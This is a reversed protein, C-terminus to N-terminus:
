FGACAGACKANMCAYFPALMTDCGTTQAGTWCQYCPTTKDGICAAAETCCGTPQSLCYNCGRSVYTGTSEGCIRYECVPGCTGTEQCALTQQFLTSTACGPQTDDYLCTNCVGDTVCSAFADCCAPQGSICAACEKYAFSLAANGCVPYTCQTIGTCHLTWCNVIADWALIGAGHHKTSDTTICAETCADDGPACAAHCAVVEACPTGDDCARLEDCCSQEMCGQCSEETPDWAFHGCPGADAGAGADSGGTGAPQYDYNLGLVSTCGGM